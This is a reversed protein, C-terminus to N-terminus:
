ACKKQVAAEASENIIRADERALDVPACTLQLNDGFDFTHPATFKETRPYLLYLSLPTSSPSSSQSSRSLAALEAQYRKGYAFMQYVDARSITKRLDGGDLRKWKADAIWLENGRRAVIDPRLLFIDGGTQKTALRYRSEQGRIQWGPFERRLRATVYDEFIREMPFLLGVSENAGRWTSPADGRLLLQVWAFLRHYQTMTRDINARALDATINRSTPVEDFYFRAQRLRSQNKGSRAISQLRVIASKILRNIPRDATFEVYRVYFRERHVFNERLQRALLLKGKLVRLNGERAAYHRALGRRTLALVEDAFMTILAEMLPFRRLARVESESLYRCPGNRWTRLMRLFIMRTQETRKDINAAIHASSHDSDSNGDEDDALAVKPLIELVVNKTQVVGVYNHATLKDRGVTMVNRGHLDAGRRLVADTLEDLVAKSVRVDVKASADCGLSQHERMTLNHMTPM